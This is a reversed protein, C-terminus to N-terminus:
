KRRRTALLGLLAFSGLALSTPEPVQALSASIASGGWNLLVGDLANQGILGSPQQNIWGLPVPPSTTGWNLLVLDLDGQGVQGSNDYDGALSVTLSVSDPDIANAATAAGLFLGETTFTGASSIDTGFAPAIGSYTGSAVLDRGGVGVGTVINATVSVDQGYLIDLTGGSKQLVPDRPGSSTPIPNIAGIGGPITVANGNTGFDVNDILGRIASIGFSGDAAGGAIVEAYLKWTGSGYELDIDLSDARANSTAFVALAVACFSLALDRKM